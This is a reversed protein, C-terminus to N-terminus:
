RIHTIKRTFSEEGIAARVFYVGPMVDEADWRVQQTAGTARGEHLAAVRHGAVDFAEVRVIAGAPGRFSIVTQHHFPNPHVRIDTVHVPLRDLPRSGPFRGRHLQAERIAQDFEALQRRGLLEEPLDLAHPAKEAVRPQLALEQQRLSIGFAGQGVEADGVHPLQSAPVGPEERSALALVPSAESKGSASGLGFRHEQSCVCPRGLPASGLGPEDM